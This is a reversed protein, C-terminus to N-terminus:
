GSTLPRRGFPATRRGFCAAALLLLVQSITAPEPVARVGYIIYASGAPTAGPAGIVLDTVGDGNLDGAWEASNGAGDLVEAGDFAAGPLTTTGINALNLEVTQGLNSRGYIVFTEGTRSGIATSSGPASLLIDDFGDGNFDGHASVDRGLHRIDGTAPIHLGALSGGLSGMSIAGSLQTASPKGFVVYAEGSVTGNIPNNAYAGIILDDLGDGNFDGGGSM